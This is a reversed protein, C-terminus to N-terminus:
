RDQLAVPQLSGCAARWEERQFEHQCVESAIPQLAALQAGWEDSQLHAM